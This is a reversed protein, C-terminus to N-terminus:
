TAGHHVVSLKSQMLSPAHVSTEALSKLQKVDFNSVGIARTKGADLLDEMARWTVATDDTATEGRCPSHMLTLDVSAVGLQELNANLNSTATAYDPGCPIKTELFIPPSGEGGPPVMGFSEIVAESMGSQIELQDGYRSRPVFTDYM